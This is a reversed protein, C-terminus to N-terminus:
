TTILYNLSEDTPNKVKLYNLEKTQRAYTDAITKRAASMISLNPDHFDLGMKKYFGVTDTPGQLIPELKLTKYKKATVMDLFATFLARGANKVKKDVGIPWTAFGVLDCHKKKCISVLLGCPKEDQVALLVRQRNTTGIFDGMFQILEQWISFNKSNRKSPLLKSMDIGDVIRNLAEKDKKGIRYIEIPATDAISKVIAFKRATFATNKNQKVPSINM